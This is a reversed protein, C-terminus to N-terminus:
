RKPRQGESIAGIVTGGAAGIVLGLPLNGLMMGIFFGLAAGTAIMMGIGPPEPQQQEPERPAEATPRDDDM